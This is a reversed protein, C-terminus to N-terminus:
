KRCNSIFVFHGFTGRVGRPIKIDRESDSSEAYSDVKLGDSLSGYSLIM